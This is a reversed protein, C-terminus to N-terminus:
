TSGILSYLTHLWPSNIYQQSMATLLIRESIPSMLRGGAKQIALFPQEM